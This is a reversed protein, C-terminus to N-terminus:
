PATVEEPNIGHAALMPALWSMDAWVERARAIDQRVHDLLYPRTTKGKHTPFIGHCCKEDSPIGWRGNLVNCWYLVHSRRLSMGICIDDRMMWHNNSADHSHTFVYGCAPCSTGPVVQPYVPSAAPPKPETLLDLLDLQGPFISSM